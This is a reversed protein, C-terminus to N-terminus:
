ALNWVGTLYHMVSRGGNGIRRGLELTYEVREVSPQAEATPGLNSWRDMEVVVAPNGGLQAVAGWFISEFDVWGSATGDVAPDYSDVLKLLDAPDAEGRNKEALAVASFRALFRAQDVKAPDIGQMPHEASVLAETPSSSLRQRGDPALRTPAGSRTVAVGMAVLRHIAARVIIRSTGFEMALIRESPLTGGGEYEGDLIRTKLIAFVQEALPVKTQIVSKPM